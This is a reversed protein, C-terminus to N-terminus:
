GRHEVLEDGGIVQFHRQAAPGPMPGAWYDAYPPSPLGQAGGGQIVVVSPYNGSRARRHHGEDQTRRREGRTLVLVLLLSTPVAAAVGCVVGVVVAMAEASMQRGVVVALTIAFILGMAVAVKRFELGAGIDLGRQERDM